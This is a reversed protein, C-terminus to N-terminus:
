ADDRELTDGNPEGDNSKVFYSEDEDLRTEVLASTEPMTVRGSVLQQDLAELTARIQTRLPQQGVYSVIRRPDLNPEWDYATGHLEAVRELLPILQNEVAPQVVPSERDVARKFFRRIESEVATGLTAAALEPIAERDDRRRKDGGYWTDDQLRTAAACVTYIPYTMERSWNLLWNLNRYAVLRNVKGLRGVLEVEDVLIVWGAYGCLRVIDAMVGFYSPAHVGMRFRDLQPFVGRPHARKYIARLEAVPLRVGMLDGYLWEKEEPTSGDSLYAELVIVPLPHPYREAAYFPTENLDDTRRQNLPRQIGPVSSNPLRIAPAIRGYFQYLNHCSVERNLAVHSVAFGRALALHAITILAHTKGQGYQGWLLRGQPIEGDAFRELDNLVLSSLNPRLDPLLETADNSPVGARLCEIARMAKFRTEDEM